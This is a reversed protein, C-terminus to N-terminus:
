GFRAVIAYSDLKAGGNVVQSGVEVWAHAAMSRSEPEPRRADRTVGLCVTARLNRRRLMRSTALAQQLCVARFPMAEAVSAVMGGIERALDPCVSDEPPPNGITGFGRTYVRAPLLTVARAHVLALVAELALAKRRSPARAFAAIGRALRV